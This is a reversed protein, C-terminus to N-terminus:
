LFLDRVSSNTKRIQFGIANRRITRLFLNFHSYAGCVRRPPKMYVFLIHCLSNCANTEFRSLKEFNLKCKLRVFFSLILYVFIMM